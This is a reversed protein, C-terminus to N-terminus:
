AENAEGSSPFRLIVERGKDTEEYSLGAIIAFHDDSFLVNKFFEAAREKQEPTIKGGVFNEEVAAWLEGATELPYDTVLRVADVPDAVDSDLQHTMREWLEQERDNLPM